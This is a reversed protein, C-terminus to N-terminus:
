VDKSKMLKKTDGRKTNQAIPKIVTSDKSERLNSSDQSVRATTTVKAEIWIFNYEFYM